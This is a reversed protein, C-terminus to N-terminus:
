DNERLPQLASDAFTSRDLQGKRIDFGSTDNIRDPWSRYPSLSGSRQIVRHFPADNQLAFHTRAQNYYAAYSTLIRQLHAEGFTVLQDLCERRVAGIRREAYGNQWTSGPSIPRDRIGMARIRSMFVQGYARDNDRVLYALASEWPFAETVRDM